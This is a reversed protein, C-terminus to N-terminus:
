RGVESGSSFGLAERMMCSGASSRLYVAKTQRVGNLQCRRRKPSGAIRLFSALYQGLGRILDGQMTEHQGHGSM